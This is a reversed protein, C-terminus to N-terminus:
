PLTPRQLYRVSGLPKHCRANANARTKARACQGPDPRLQQDVDDQLHLLHPAEAFHPCDVASCGGSSWNLGTLRQGVRNKGVVM